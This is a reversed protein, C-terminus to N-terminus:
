FSSLINNHLEKAGLHGSFYIVEAKFIGHFARTMEKKFRSKQPAVNTM